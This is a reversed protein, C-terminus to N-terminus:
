LDPLDHPTEEQEIALQVLEAISKIELWNVSNDPDHLIGSIATLIQEIGERETCGLGSFQGTMRVAEKLQQTIVAHAAFQFDM